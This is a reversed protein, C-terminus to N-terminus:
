SSEALLLSAGLRLRGGGWFVYGEGGLERTAEMAKKVQAAAWAFVTSNTGARTFFSPCRPM